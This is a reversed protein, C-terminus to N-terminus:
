LTLLILLKLCVIGSIDTTFVAYSNSIPQIGQLQYQSAIHLQADEM